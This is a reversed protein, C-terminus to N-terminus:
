LSTHVIQASVVSVAFQTSVVSVAVKM